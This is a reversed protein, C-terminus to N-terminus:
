YAYSIIKTTLDDDSHQNIGMFIPSSTSSKEYSLFRKRYYTTITYYHEPRKQLVKVLNFNKLFCSHDYVIRFTRHKSLSGTRAQIMTKCLNAKVGPVSDWFRTGM